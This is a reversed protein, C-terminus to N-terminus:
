QRSRSTNWVRPAIKGGDSRRRGLRKQGRLWGSMPKQCAVPKLQFDLTVEFPTIIDVATLTVKSFAPESLADPATGETKLKSVRGTTAIRDLEMVPSRMRVVRAERLMVSQDAVLDIFRRSQEPGLLGGAALDGTDIAKQLLEDVSM